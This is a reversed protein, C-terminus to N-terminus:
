PAAPREAVPKKAAVADAHLPVALFEVTVTEEEADSTDATWRSGSRITLQSQDSSRAYEGPYDLRAPVHLTVPGTATGPAVDHDDDEGLDVRWKPARFLFTQLRGVPGEGLGRFRAVVMEDPGADPITVSEGTRARTRALVRPPGCRDPVRALVQWKETARLQEYHCFLATGAAPAEFRDDEPARLIRQPAARSGLMRADLVDLPRTYAIKSQLTPVPRWAIEPYAWSLAAESPWVHTTRGDVMDVSRSDIQIEDRLTTRAHDITQKPALLMRVQQAARVPSRHPPLLAPGIQQSVLLTMLVLSGAAAAGMWPRRRPWGFALVAGLACAFFFPAHSEDHRVFGQKFASFMLVGGLALAGLRATRSWGRTALWAGVTLLLLSVVLAPYEWASSEETGLAQSHGSVMEGAHALYAPIADLPQGTALWLVLASLAGAAAFAGFTRVRRDRFAIACTLGGLILVTLGANLRVLIQSGGLVGALLPFTWAAHGGPAPPRRLVAICWVFFAVLVAASLRDDSETTTVALCAVVTLPAALWLPMSRRAAWLLSVALGAQVLAVYLLSLAGQLPYSLVPVTLFGLPGYTWAIETGFDLGMRSALHLGIVWSGDNGPEVVAFDRLPWTLLAIALGLAM